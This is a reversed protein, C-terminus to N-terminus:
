EYRSRIEFETTIPDLGEHVVTQEYRGPPLLVYTGLALEYAADDTSDLCGARQRDQGDPGADVRTITYHGPEDDDGPGEHVHVEIWEEGGPYPQTVPVDIGDISATFTANSLPWAIVSPAEHALGWFPAADTHDAQTVRLVPEVQCDAETSAHELDEPLDELDLFVHVRADYYPVYDLFQGSEIELATLAWEDNPIYLGDGPDPKGLKLAYSGPAVAYRLATDLVQLDVDSKGVADEPRGQYLSFYRLHPAANTHVFDGSGLKLVPLEIENDVGSKLGLNCGTTVLQKAAETTEHAPGESRVEICDEGTLEVDYFKYFDLRKVEGDGAQWYVEVGGISAATSLMVGAPGTQVEDGKGGIPGMDNAGRSGPDPECAACCLLAAILTQEHIPRKM